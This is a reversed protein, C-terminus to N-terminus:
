KIQLNNNEKLFAWKIEKWEKLAEKISTKDVKMTTIEKKYEKSITDEDTIEVSESKRFSIKFLDTDIKEIWMKELNFKIYEKLRDKNSKYSKKLKNLREIENDISSISWEINQLVKCIWNSKDKISIDMNDLIQLAEDSLVWDSDVMNLANEYNKTIEYLQM